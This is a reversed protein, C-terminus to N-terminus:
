WGAAALQAAAIRARRASESRDPKAGTRDAALAQLFDDLWAPTTEFSGPLVRARLLLRGGNRLKAGSTIWGRVTKTSRNVRRAAEALSIFECHPFGVSPRPVSDHDVM